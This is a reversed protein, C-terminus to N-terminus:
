AARLCGAGSAIRRSLLPLREGVTARPKAAGPGVGPILRRGNFKQGVRFLASVGALPADQIRARTRTCEHLCIISLHATCGPRPDPRPEVSPRCSHHHEHQMQWHTSNPEEQSVALKKGTVMSKSRSKISRLAVGHAPTSSHLDIRVLLTSVSM